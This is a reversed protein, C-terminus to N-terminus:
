NLASPCYSIKIVVFEMHEIATLVILMLISISLKSNKRWKGNMM